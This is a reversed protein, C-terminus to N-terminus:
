RMQGPSRQGTLYGAASVGSLALLTPPIVPLTAIMVPSMSVTIGIYYVIAIITWLLFQVREPAVVGGSTILDSWGPGFEGSGKGGALSKIGTSLVTTGLALTMAGGVITSAQTPVALQVDVIGSLGQVFYRSLALYIYAFVSAFLWLYLQAKSLSYSNSDQDILFLSLLSRRTGNPAGVKVTAALWFSLVALAITLVSAWFIVDDWSMSAFTVDLKQQPAAGVRLTVSQLGTYSTPIGSVVTNGSPGAIASQFCPQPPKVNPGCLPLEGGPGTGDGFLLNAGALPDGEKAGNQVWPFVVTYGGSGPFVTQPKTTDDALAAGNWGIGTLVLTAVFLAIKMAPHTRMIADTASNAIM